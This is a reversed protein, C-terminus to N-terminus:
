RAAGLAGSRSSRSGIWRLIARDLPEDTSILTHDADIGRLQRRTEQLFNQMEALYGERIARPNAEIRDPSELSLFETPDEFPFELEDRDLLQFVSVECRRSRLLSLRSLAKPNPDFLDSIVFVAARRRAKEAVFSIADALSTSGGAECQELVDMLGNVHVTSAGPPVYRRVVAPLRSDQQAPANSQGLESAAAPEALPGGCLVLGVMDQQRTLLHILSAALMRGYDLKSVGESGDAKQRGYAMSASADLVVWAKLNTELEFKKVYFKDARAFVRWDLHRLEDGPAYEKYEAFEVAQGQHPSKHLGSLVGEVVRRARISLKGLRSLTLPDLLPPQNM